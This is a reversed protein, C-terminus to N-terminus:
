LLNHSSLMNVSFEDKKKGMLHTCEMGFIHIRKGNDMCVLSNQGTIRLGVMYTLIDAQEYSLRGSYKVTM